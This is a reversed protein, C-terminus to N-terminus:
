FWKSFDSSFFLDADKMMKEALKKYRKSGKQNTNILFCYRNVAWIANGLKSKLLGYETANDLYQVDDYNSKYVEYLKKMKKKNKRSYPISSLIDSIEPINGEAFRSLEWDIFYIKDKLVKLNGGDKNWRLDGHRFTIIPQLKIKKNLIFNTKQQIWGFAEESFKDRESNEIYKTPTTYYLQDMEAMTQANQASIKNSKCWDIYDQYKLSELTKLQTVFTALQKNNLDIISADKGEVYSVIHINLKSDYLLSRPAFTIGADEVFLLYHHENAFRPKNQVDTRATRIVLKEAGSTALYNINSEGFGIKKVKANSILGSSNVYEKIFREDM